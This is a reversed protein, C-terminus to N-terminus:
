KFDRTELAATALALAGACYVCAYATAIAIHIGSATVGDAALTRMNFVPLNPVVSATLDCAGAIAPPFKAAFGRLDYSWQGVLFLALTYLASLVPTSIASFLVAIATVVTLELGALYVAQLVSPVQQAHGRLVLLFSLALGMAVAMIWLTASLGAWKGVLYSRRSVPRALLNYITRKDIEKAVMSTGVLLILTLGIFTIGTLGLDVTLRLGEGLALPSLLQTAALLAAGAGLAAVLMRDRAAERFTNRAILYATL